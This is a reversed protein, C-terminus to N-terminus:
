NTLFNFFIIIVKKILENKLNCFDSVRDCEEEEVFKVM